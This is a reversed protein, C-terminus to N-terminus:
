FDGNRVIKAISIATRPPRSVWASLRRRWRHPLIWHGLHVLIDLLAPNGGTRAQRWLAVFSHRGAGARAAEASVWTLLYSAYAERSVLDHSDAIWAAYDRWSGEASARPRDDDIDWVVLPDEGAFRFATGSVRSTRLVWDLDEARPLDERFPTKLWLKRPAFLTSTQLFGGGGFLSRRRFLYEGVPEDIDPLRKPWLFEGDSSHAILRCSIIPYEVRCAQAAALQRELKEPMWVDDDDLFAVWSGRAASVGRNRAASPNLRGRYPIVRLRPDTIGALAIETLPDQAAVVTIVEIDRLTQGLASTVARCVLDPRACTPVVASVVPPVVGVGPSSERQTGGARWTLLWAWYLSLGV